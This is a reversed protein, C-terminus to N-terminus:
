EEPNKVWELHSDNKKALIALLLVMLGSMVCWGSIFCAIFEKVGAFAIKLSEKFSKKNKM